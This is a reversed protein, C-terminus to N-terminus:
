PETRLTDANVCHRLRGDAFEAIVELVGDAVALQAQTTSAGVHHTGLVRPHHVLPGDFTAEGGAPEDPYVDLGVWLGKEEIAELLATTEVLDGRSTNILIAEPQVHTLLDPGILGRTNSDLPVHFSLVDCTRALTPLDACLEVGIAAIREVIEPPRDDRVLGHVACGFAVARSAFALGIDGLGVVGVRRGAIGRARQYEAKRWRGARLDAVQDPIRRDIALLLGFALEAVAAANLGPVNSVAIRAASAADVDITDTGSGARVVLRLTDAGDLVQAPVRTSRVVLVDAGALLGPLDDSGADPVYRLSSVQAALRERHADPFRDAIVVDM